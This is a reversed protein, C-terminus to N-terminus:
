ISLGAIGDLARKLAMFDGNVFEGGMPVDDPMRDWKDYCNRAATILDALSPSALRARAQAPYRDASQQDSLRTGDTLLFRREPLVRTGNGLDLLVTDTPPQQKAWEILDAIIV